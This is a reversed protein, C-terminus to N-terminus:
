TTTWRLVLQGQCLCGLETSSAVTVRFLTPLREPVLMRVLATKTYKLVADMVLIVKGPILLDLAILRLTKALSSSPAASRRLM